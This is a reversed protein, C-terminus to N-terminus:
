IKSKLFNTWQQAMAKAIGPFTKSRNSANLINKTHDTFYRNKYVNNKKNLQVEYPKPKDLHTKTEFLTNDKQHLLKPLNKLWLCTRKMDNDGFYYPHIIQSPKLINSSIHGVPNELCIFDIPLSYLDLFFEIAKNRKKIREIAKIGHTEINCYHLGASSLYTCPPFAILVTPKIKEIAQFIDGQIHWEPHNGSCMLIDNSYAEIELNRFAITVAQSEECGVLIKINNM